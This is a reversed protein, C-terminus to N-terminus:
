SGSNLCFREYLMLMNLWDQSESISEKAFSKKFDVISKKGKLSSNKVFHVAERFLASAELMITKQLHRLKGDLTQLKALGHGQSNKEVEFLKRRVRRKLENIKYSVPIFVGFCDKAIEYLLNVRPDRYNECYFYPFSGRLGQCERLQAFIESGGYPKLRNLLGHLINVDMGLFFDLNQEIEEITNDPTFNIFSIEGDLGLDELIQMAQEIDQLMLGKNFKDLIRQNASELGLFIRWLGVDKLRSLTDCDINDARNAVSFLINLKRCELERTFHLVREKNKIGPGIFIDDVFLFEKLGYTNTLSEIEDAINNATRFRISPGDPISYFSRVACFSCDAYCGRGALLSVVPSNGSKEVLFPLTDRAPFPIGNLDEILKRPKNAVVEYGNKFAIGDIRKWDKNNDLVKALEVITEEGEYMVISDVEPCLNFLAKYHFTPTFGGVTIHAKVRQQRLEKIITATPEVFTPDPITFGILTYRGAQIRNVTEALSLGFLSGDLIDTEFGNERLSACLYCLALSESNRVFDTEVPRSCKVLIVKM